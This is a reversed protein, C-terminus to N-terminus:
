LPPLARDDALLAVAPADRRRTVTLGAAESQRVIAEELLHLDFLEGEAKEIQAARQEPTLGARGRMLDGLQDAVITRLRERGALFLLGTLMEIAPQHFPVGAAMVTEIALGRASASPELLRRIPLRDIAATAAQDAWADFANLAAALTQPAARLNEIERAKGAIEARVAELTDHATAVTARQKSFAKMVNALM